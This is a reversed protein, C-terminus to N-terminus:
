KLKQWNTKARAITGSMDKMAMAKGEASGFVYLTEGVIIWQQPDAEAKDGVSVGTTCFGGFQPAFQEPKATFMQRHDASAFLYREGDWDFAFADAGKVPRKDTFYAVPDYGSLVIRNKKAPGESAKAPVGSVASFAVLASIAGLASKIAGRRHFARSQGM